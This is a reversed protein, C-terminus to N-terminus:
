TIQSKVLRLHTKNKKFEIERTIAEATLIALEDRIFKIESKSKTKCIRNRLKQILINAEVDLM